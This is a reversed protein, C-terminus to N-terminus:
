NKELTHRCPFGVSLNVREIIEVNKLCLLHLSQSRIFLRSSKACLNQKKLALLNCELEDPYRFFLM